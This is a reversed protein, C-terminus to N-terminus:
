PMKAHRPGTLDHTRFDADILKAEITFILWLQLPNSCSDLLLLLLLLLAADFANNVAAHLQGM